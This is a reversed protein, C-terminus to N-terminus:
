IFAAIVQDSIVQCEFALDFSPIFIDLELSRNTAPNVLGTAKRANFIVEV